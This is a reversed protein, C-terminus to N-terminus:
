VPKPYPWEGGFGLVTEFTNRGMVVADVTAIFAPYGYDDGSPDSKHGPLWDLAGDFGIHGDADATRARQRGALGAQVADAQM